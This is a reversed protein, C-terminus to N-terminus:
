LSNCAAEAYSCVPACPRATRETLSVAPRRRARYGCAAHHAISLLAHPSLNAATPRTVARRAIEHRPRLQAPQRRADVREVQGALRQKRRQQAFLQVLALKGGPLRTLRLREREPPRLERDARVLQRKGTKLSWATALLMPGRRTWM